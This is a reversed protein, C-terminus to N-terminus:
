SALRENTRTIASEIEPQARRMARAVVSNEPYRALIERLREPYDFREGAPGTTMDAMWLADALASEERPWVEIQPTLRRETAECTAASHHAVLACLRPSYGQDALYRAGDIQHMGTVRLEPAYGLDHWWAAVVLLERETHPVSKALEAAREAVAQTHRWRSGLPALLGEAVSEAEAVTPDDRM